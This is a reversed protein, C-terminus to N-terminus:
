TRKRFQQPSVGTKKKFQNCFYASSNFGSIRAIQSIPMDTTTLLLCAERVRRAMVYQTLTNGTEEKFLHSAYFPSLHLSRALRELSFDERYHDEIWSMMREIHRGERLASNREEEGAGRTGLKRLQRLLDLLFLGFEEQQAFVAAGRLREDLERCMADFASRREPDLVYISADATGRWLQQYFGHLAPFPSVFREFAYPDFVIPTRVYTTEMKYHHLQYPQCVVLTGPRVAHLKGEVIVQGTGEAVFVMEIGQHANVIEWGNEKTVHQYLFLFGREEFRPIPNVLRSM